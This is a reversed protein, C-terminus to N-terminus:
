RSHGPPRDDSTGVFLGFSVAMVWRFMMPAGVSAAASNNDTAAFACSVLFIGSQSPRQPRPLGTPAQSGVLGGPGRWSGGSVGSYLATYSDLRALVLAPVKKSMLPVQPGTPM